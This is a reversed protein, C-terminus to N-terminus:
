FYRALTFEFRSRSTDYLALSSDIRTFCWGIQPSLGLVRIKRDGLTARVIARTDHRPSADFIPLPADFVARSLSVSAGFNVGHPLEGGVGLTGGLETNSYAPERLQDRRAFPGVSVVITRAVARELTDYLGGQWGDYGHDFDASTRRIDIQVGLRTRDNLVTQGGGRAGIQRSVARGGFWRQAAVGELSVSSAQSLRYEAGAAGQVLYDDYASGSYDTGFGDLEAIASVQKSVPLRVAGSIRGTVGLGSKAKAAENLTLPVPEGGLLVTVSQAATASNVNTDPAIGLYVDLRWARSARITDRVTRITRAVEPPLDKDQAAIRFQRDASAPRKMALLVKALELRVRTQRPDEALVSKFQEAAGALDGTASAILGALFRSQLRYGPAMGLAAVLPRAEAYHREGVLKEAAVLLQAPTLRLQGGGTQALAPAAALLSAALVAIFRM